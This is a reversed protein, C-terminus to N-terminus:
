RAPVPAVELVLREPQYSDPRRVLTQELLHDTRLVRFVRPRAHPVLSNITSRNAAVVFLRRGQAAWERALARLGAPSLRANNLRPTLASTQGSGMIAVPVNCFSRFTQPDYYWTLPAAEQPVIVAGRSGIRNCVKKVATEFGQQQTMQTVNRITYAPYAIAVVGLALAVSRRGDWGRLPRGLVRREALVNLGGFAVLVFLPLIAPLFRRMVWIHDPTISPRWLYLLAPPALLLAAIQASLKLRGRIWMLAAYAAGVIALTVTIPGLYWAVWQVSHEFYRRTPDIKLGNAHQVLGVVTSAGRSRVTQLHPRVLWAGFGGVLVLAAAIWGIPHSV